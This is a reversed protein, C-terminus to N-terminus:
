CRDPHSKGFRVGAHITPFQEGLSEPMAGQTILFHSFRGLIWPRLVGAAMREKTLEVTKVLSDQNRKLVASAM